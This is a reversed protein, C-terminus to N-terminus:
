ATALHESVRRDGARRYLKGLSFHCCAGLPRMGLELALATSSAYHAEATAVDAYVRHSATEGLLHHAWAEHGREGRERALAVARTGVDWAEQVRGALLHAEGLRGPSLRTNKGM